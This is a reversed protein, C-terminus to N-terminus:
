VSNVYIKIANINTPNASLFSFTRVVVNSYACFGVDVTNGENILAIIRDLGANLGAQQANKQNLTLTSAVDMTLFISYQATQKRYSKYYFNDGIRLTIKEGPNDLRYYPDRLGYVPSANDPNNSMEYASLGDMTGGDVFIDYNIPNTNDYLSEEFLSIGWDSMQGCMTGGDAEIGRFSMNFIVNPDNQRMSPTPNYYTAVRAAAGDQYADVRDIKQRMSINRLLKPEVVDYNNQAEVYDQPLLSADVIEDLRRFKGSAVDYYASKDFDTVHSNVMEIKPSLSQSIERIHTRYPKVEGLYELLYETNDVPAIPSALLSRQYGSVSIFSTKSAWDVEDNEVHIFHLMTSFLKNIEAVSLLKSDKIADIIVRLDFGGERTSVVDPDFAYSGGLSSLAHHDSNTAILDDIQITGGQAAVKIWNGDEAIYWAWRGAGDDDVRILPTAVNPNELSNRINRNDYRVSPPNEASYGSAYWDATFIFDSTRYTQMMVLVFGGIDANPTGPRYAWLTWFGSATEDNKVLIRMNSTLGTIEYIDARTDVSVDYTDAPVFISDLRLLADIPSSIVNESVDLELVSWQSPGRDLLVRPSRSSIRSSDYEWTKSEFPFYEYPINGQAAIFAPIDVLDALNNYNDVRRGDWESVPPIPETTTVVDDIHWALKKDIPTSRYIQALESSSEDVINKAGLIYNLMKVFTLRARTLVESNTTIMSANPRKTLGFTRPKILKDDFNALGDRIKKWLHDPLEVMDDDISVVEWEDHGTDGFNTISTDIQLVADSGLKLGRLGGVVFSNTDIFGLWPTTADPRSLRASLGAASIKEGIPHIQRGKVWFYYVNVAIGLSNLERRVTYNMSEHPIGQSSDYSPSATFDEPVVDSRIWEYLDIQSGPAIQAWYSLRYEMETSIETDSLYRSLQNTMCDIYRTTSFDWWLKGVHDKGWPRRSIEIEAGNTYKAPDRDIRYSIERLAIGSVLGVFPDLVEIKPVTIPTVKLEADTLISKQDYFLASIIKQSEYRSSKTRLIEWVNDNKFYVEWKGDGRDDVYAFDNSYLFSADREAINSFRSNRFILFNPEEGSLYNTGTGLGADIEFWSGDLAIDSIIHLGQLEGNTLTESLILVPSGIDQTTLGTSRSTFIRANILNPNEDIGEIKVINNNLQDLSAYHATWIGWDEPTDGHLWVRDGNVLELLDSTEFSGFNMGILKAENIRVPGAMPFASITDSSIENPFAGDEHTLIAPNNYLTTPTVTMDVTNNEIEYGTAYRIAAKNWILSKATSASFGSWQTLLYFNATATRPPAQVLKNYSYTTNTAFAPIIGNKDL